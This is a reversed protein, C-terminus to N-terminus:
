PRALLPRPGIFSMDGYFINILQPLEDLRIQFAVANEDTHLVAEIVFPHRGDNAVRAVDAAGDYLKKKMYYEYKDRNQLGFEDIAHEDWLTFTFSPNRERWTQIWDDPRQKPGIWIQHIHHPIM